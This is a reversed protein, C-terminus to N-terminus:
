LENRDVFPPHPRDRERRSRGFWDFRLPRLHRLPRTMIYALGGVVAVSFAVILIVALTTSM